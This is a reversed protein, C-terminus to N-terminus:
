SAQAASFMELQCMIKCVDSGPHQLTWGVSVDNYVGEAGDPAPACETAGCRPVAWKENGSIWTRDTDRRWEGSEKPLATLAHTRPSPM